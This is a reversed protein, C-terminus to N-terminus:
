VRRKTFRSHRCKIVRVNKPSVNDYVGPEGVYRAWTWVQVTFEDRYGANKWIIRDEAIGCKVLWKKARVARAELEGACSRKGDYFMLYVVWTPQDKQLYVAINDLRANEDTFPLKGWEDFMRPQQGHASSLAILCVIFRLVTRMEDNLSLTYRHLQRPPAFETL